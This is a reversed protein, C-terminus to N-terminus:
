SWTIAGMVAIEGVGHAVDAIPSVLHHDNEGAAISIAERLHSLLITVGPYAERRLLDRMEAEVADRVAQTAPNLGSIELNLAVPIPAVVFLEATVPRRISHGTADRKDIYGYVAALDGTYIGTGPDYTGQPIGQQDARIDDMMFRVTVTGPGMAEPYVWARTVGEVELAWTVYDAGAGGHPPEQIRRLIRARYPDDKEQDAGGTLGPAVVTASAPQIGAIPSVLALTSNAAANGSAGAVIATVAVTATGGAVTGEATTQYDVSDSRRLLTGTPVISGNVGAFTVQGGAYSAAKRAVGWVSGHLTDLYEDEAQTVHRQRWIWDLFGYALHLATGVVWALVNLVSRRLLSDAGELQSAMDAQIRAIIEARTPRIFAM